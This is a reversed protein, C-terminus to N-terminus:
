KLFRDFWERILEVRQIQRDARGTFHFEEPFVVLETMVGSKKLAVYWQEGQEIPCRMDRGNQIVLTPTRVKRAHKLPSRNWYRRFDDLPSRGRFDEQIWWNYDGTGWLSILNSIGRSSVAASFRKTHSIIWNTLYGGYSHGMIGKRAKDIYVRRSVANDWRILDRYDVEGWSDSLARAHKEGYGRSGAPNCFYLVYGCSALLYFEFMFTNGYQIRPGGHICLIAPYNRSVNFGPPTIIWGQVPRSGKEGIWLSFSEGLDVSDLLAKNPVAIRYAKGSSLEHVWLDGPTKIDGRVFAIRSFNQDIDFSHVVGPGNVVESLKKGNTEVSLLLTNGRITSQFFLRRSDPSWKPPATDPVSVDDVTKHTVDIDYASTLNVARHNGWLPIIWVSSNKWNRNLGEHGIYAIYRGDPSFSLATKPGIQTKIKRLNGGDAAIIYIDMADPCLDRNVSRNSLFAIYRGDPSWCPMSEEYSDDNTLHRLKGSSINIICLHWQQRPLFGEGDRKYFLRDIHQFPQYKDVGNKRLRLLINNGDPSVELESIDGELLAVSSSKKNEVLIKRIEIHDKGSKVTYFLARGDPAWRPRNVTQRGPTLRTSYQTEINALFLGSRRQHSRKDFHAVCYAIHKGDPSIRCETIIKLSYLDDTKLRRKKSM